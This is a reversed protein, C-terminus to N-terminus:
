ATYTIDLSNQSSNYALKFKSGLSVGSANSMTLDGTMTAGVLNAKKDLEVKLGAPHVARTGDTGTTTEAATALEVHGAQAESAEDAKHSVLDNIWRGSGTTPQVISNDDAALISTSDFRYFGLSKVIITINDPTNTTNIAKLATLDAVAGLAIKQLDGIETDIIDWNDNLMTDINFTDNGDATPDKKYLAINPTNSAL